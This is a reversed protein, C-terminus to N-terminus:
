VTECTHRSAAVAGCLVCALVRKRNHHMSVGEAIMPKVNKLSIPQWIPARLENKSASILDLRPHHADAVRLDAGKERERLIM